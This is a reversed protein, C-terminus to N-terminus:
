LGANIQWPTRGEGALELLKSYFVCAADVVMAVACGEGRAAM